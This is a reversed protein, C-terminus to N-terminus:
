DWSGANTEDTHQGLTPPPLRVPPREGDVLVPSSLLELEGATPHQVTQLTGSGQVHPDSFVDALSNVPGCPVGAKRIASIWTEATRKSFEKQLM